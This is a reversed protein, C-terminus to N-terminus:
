PAPHILGNRLLSGGLSCFYLYGRLKGFRRIIPAIPARPDVQMLSRLNRAAGVDGSPFVDLRGLGRLLVLGASWPGVGPLETLRAIAAPTSMGELDAERLAGSDILRAVGRLTRAKQRSLGCTRLAGLRAHAIRTASPFGHFRRGEYELHSGFRRVVRAVIATGADLSLQQFPVVSVFAEFLTAFRPPRMGRLARATVRSAARAEARRLLPAPDVDLGLMRRLLASTEAISAASSDGARIALRIRPKGITGRNQVEVLVLGTPLTLARIYKGGEWLDVVNTPRRQLVRM